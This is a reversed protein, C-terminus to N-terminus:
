NSSSAVDDPLAAQLDTDSEPKNKPAADGTACRRMMVLDDNPVFAVKAGDEGRAIVIFGGDIMQIMETDGGEYLVVVNQDKESYGKILRRVRYEDQRAEILAEDDFITHGEDCVGDPAWKGELLTPRGTALTLAPGHTVMIPDIDEVELTEHIETKAVDGRSAKAWPVGAQGNMFFKAGTLGTAVLILAVAVVILRERGLTRPYRGAWVRTLGPNVESAALKARSMSITKLVRVAEFGGMDEQAAAMSAAEKEDQATDITHWAGDRMGEIMYKPRKKPDPDLHDVPASVTRIDEIDEQDALAAKIARLKEPAVELATRYVVQWQGEKKVEITTEM